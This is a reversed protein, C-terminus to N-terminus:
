PENRDRADAPNRVPPTVPLARYFRAEYQFWRLTYQYPVAETRQVTSTSSFPVGGVNGTTTVRDTHTIRDYGTHQTDKKWSRRWAVADAGLARAAALAETDGEDRTTMFESKGVLRTGSPVPGWPALQALAVEPGREGVFHEEFANACGALFMSSTVLLCGALSKMGHTM